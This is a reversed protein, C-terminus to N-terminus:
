LTKKNYNQYAREHMWRYCSSQESWDKLIDEQQAHWDSSKIKKDSM